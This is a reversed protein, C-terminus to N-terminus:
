RAVCTTYSATSARAVGLTATFLRDSVRRQAGRGSGHSAVSM